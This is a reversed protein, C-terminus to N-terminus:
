YASPPRWPKRRRQDFDTKSIRAADAQNCWDMLLGSHEVSMMRALTLLSLDELALWFVLDATDGLEASLWNKDALAEQGM